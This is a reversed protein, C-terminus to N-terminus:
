KGRKEESTAQTRELLLTLQSRSRPLVNSSEAPEQDTRSPGPAKLPVVDDRFVNRGRGASTSTEGPAMFGSAQYSAATPAVVTSRWAASPLNTFSRHQSTQRSFPSPRRDEVERLIRTTTPENEEGSEDLIDGDEGSDEEEGEGDSEDNENEMIARVEASTLRVSEGAPHPSSARSRRRRSLPMGANSPGQLDEAESAAATASGIKAAAPLARGLSSEQSTISSRQRMVIPRKKSSGVTAKVVPNRRNTKSYSGSRSRPSKESSNRSPVIVTPISVKVEEDFRTATFRRPLPSGGAGAGGSTSTRDVPSIDGLPDRNKEVSTLGSVKQAEVELPSPLSSGKSSSGGSGNGSKKLIPPLRGLNSRRNQMSRVDAVAVRAFPSRSKPTPTGEDESYESVSLNEPKRAPELGSIESDMSTISPRTYYNELNRSARPSGTPTTRIYGGDTINKVQRALRRGDMRSMVRESRLIRWFSNELRPGKGDDLFDRSAVAATIINDTWTRMLM